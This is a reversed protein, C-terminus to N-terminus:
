MTLILVYMMFLTNVRRAVRARHIDARRSTVTHRCTQKDSYIYIYIYISLSLPLSIYICIYTYIYIYVYVCQMYIYIYVYICMVYTTIDWWILDYWIMHNINREIICLPMGRVSQGCGPASYVVSPQLRKSGQGSPLGSTDIAIGSRGIGFRRRFLIYWGACPQPGSSRLPISLSIIIMIM